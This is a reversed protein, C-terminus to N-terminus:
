PRDDADEDEGDDAAPQAQFAELLRQALQEYQAKTTAAVDRWEPWYLSSRDKRAELEDLVQGVTPQPVHRM